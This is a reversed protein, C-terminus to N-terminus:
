RTSRPTGDRSGGDSNIIVATFQPFYKALGAHAARVVHGITRSNNYSPIGVVVDVQGLNRIANEAAEPLTHEPMVNFSRGGVLAASM